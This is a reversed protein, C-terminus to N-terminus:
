RYVLERDRHNAEVVLPAHDCLDLDDSERCDLWRGRRGGLCTLFLRQEERTPGFFFRANDFYISGVTAFSGRFGACAGALLRGSASGRRLMQLADAEASDPLTVKALLVVRDEELALSEFERGFDVSPECGSSSVPLGARLGHFLELAAAGREGGVWFACALGLRAATANPERQLVRKYLRRATFSRGAHFAESAREFDRVATRDPVGTVLSYLVAGSMVIGALAALLDGYGRPRSRLPSELDPSPAVRIAEVHSRHESLRLRDGVLVVSFITLLRGGAPSETRFRGEHVRRRPARGYTVRFDGEILPEDASPPRPQTM